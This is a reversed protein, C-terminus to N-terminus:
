SNKPWGGPPILAWKEGDLEDGRLEDTGTPSAFLYSRRGNERIIVAVLPADAVTDADIKLRVTWGPTPITHSISGPDRMRSRFVCVYTLTDDRVEDAKTLRGAERSFVLPEGENDWAVVPEFEDWERGDKRREYKAWYGHDAKIM